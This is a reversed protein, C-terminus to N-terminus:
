GGLAVLASPPQRGNAQTNWSGASLRRMLVTLSRPHRIVDVLLKQSEILGTRLGDRSQWWRDPDFASYRSPRVMVKTPHGVMFRQVLRRLRRSHDRTTVFIVSRIRQRECWDRLVRAESETGSARAIQEIATVRLARLQRTSLAARDDYPLGRRLFEKDVADPPDAFLAVRPAMGAQVLDAAELVGEGNAHTAVVIVDAPEIPDSIVLAWGAARLLPTRAGAITALTAVAVAGAAIVGLSWRLRRSWRSRRRCYTTM